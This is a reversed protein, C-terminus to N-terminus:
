TAPLYNEGSYTEKLSFLLSKDAYKEVKVDDIFPLVDKLLNLLKRKEYKYKIINNLVISLNEGNKELQVKGTIPVGEQPLKPYFNYISMNNYVSSTRPVLFDYIQNEIILTNEPISKDFIFNKFIDKDFPKKEHNLNEYKIKGNESSIQKKGIDCNLLFIDRDIKFGTEDQTFKLAFDNNAENIAISFLGEGTHLSHGFDYDSSINLSMAKEHSININRLYEIGGQMSIANELGDIAINRLFEFIHIFNSKGSANAGIVINFKGLEIDLNKFSKFNEGKIRKIAM